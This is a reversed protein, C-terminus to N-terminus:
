NTEYESCLFICPPPLALHTSILALFFSLLLFPTTKEMRGQVWVGKQMIEGPCDQADEFDIKLGCYTLSDLVDSRPSIFTVAARERKKKKFCIIISM